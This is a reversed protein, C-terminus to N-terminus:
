SVRFSSTAKATACFVFHAEQNCSHVSTDTVTTCFLCMFDHFFRHMMLPLSRCVQIQRLERLRLIDFFEQVLIHNTLIICFAIQSYRHIIMVFTQKLRLILIIHLNFLRVDNHHSTGSGSLSQQSTGNSLQEMHRKGNYIRSHQGFCSIHSFINFTNQGAQKLYSVIIHLFRFPTDNENVFNIFNGPFSIVRGNRAIYTSLTYLLAQQLQQFTRHHINRRLPSTFM